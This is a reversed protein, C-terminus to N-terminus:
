YPWPCPCEMEKRVFMVSWQGIGIYQRRQMYRLECNPAYALDMEWRGLLSSTDVWTMIGASRDVTDPPGLYALAEDRQLSESFIQSDPYRPRAAVFVILCMVICALRIVLRTHKKM